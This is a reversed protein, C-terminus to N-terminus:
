RGDRVGPPREDLPPLRHSVGLRFQTEVRVREDAGAVVVVVFGDVGDEVSRAPAKM